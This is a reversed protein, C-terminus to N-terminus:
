GRTPNTDFFEDLDIGHSADLDFFEMEIVHTAPDHPDGKATVRLVKNVLDEGPAVRVVVQEFVRLQQVFDLDPLIVILGAHLERERYLRLFDIANRTVLIASREFAEQTIKSDGHGALGIDNVHLVLAGLRAGVVRLAPTLHEDLLFTLVVAVL